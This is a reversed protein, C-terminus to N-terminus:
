FFARHERYLRAHIEVALETYPYFIGDNYIRYIGEGIYPKDDLIPAVLDEMKLNIAGYRDKIRTVFYQGSFVKVIDDYICPVVYEGTSTVVGFHRSQTALYLNPKGGEGKQLLTLMKEWKHALIERGARMVGWKGDKFFMDLTDRKELAVVEDFQPQFITNGCKDVTGLRDGERVLYGYDAYEIASYEVKQVRKGKANILGFKGNYKVIALSDPSFESISEYLPSVVFLGTNSITGWKGEVCVRALNGEFPCAENFVPKITFKGESNAYGWLGKKHQLPTIEELLKKGKVEKLKPADVFNQAGLQVALGLLLASTLLINSLRNM